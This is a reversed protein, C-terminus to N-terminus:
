DMYSTVSPPGCIKVDAVQNHFFLRSSKARSLSLMEVVTQFASLYPVLTGTRAECRILCNSKRPFIVVPVRERMASQIIYVGGSRCSQISKIAKWYHLWPMADLQPVLSRGAHKWGHHLGMPVRPSRLLADSCTDPVYQCWSLYTRLPQGKLGNTQQSRAAWARTTSSPAAAKCSEVYPYYM